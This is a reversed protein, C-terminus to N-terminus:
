SCLLLFCSTELRPYDCAGRGKFLLLLLLLLVLFNKLAYLRLLMVVSDQLTPKILLLLFLRFLPLFLQLPWWLFHTSSWLRTSTCKNTHCHFGHLANVKIISLQSDFRSLLWVGSAPELRMQGTSLSRAVSGFLQHTWLESTHKRQCCSRATPRFCRRRLLGAHLPSIPKNTLSENIM